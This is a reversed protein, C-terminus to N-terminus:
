RATADSHQPRIPGFEIPQGKHASTPEVRGAVARRSRDFSRKRDGSAIALLNLNEFDLRLALIGHRKGCIAVAMAPLAAHSQFRQELGGRKTGILSMASCTM